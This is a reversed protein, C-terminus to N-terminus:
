APSMIPANTEQVSCGFHATVQYASVEIAVRNKARNALAPTRKCAISM